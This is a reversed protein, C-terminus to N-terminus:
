IALLRAGLVTVAAVFALAAFAPDYSGVMLSTALLVSLMAALVVFALLKEVVGVM